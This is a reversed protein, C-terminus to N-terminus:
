LEDGFKGSSWRMKSNLSGAEMPPNLTKKLSGPLDPSPSDDYLWLWGRERELVLESIDFPIRPTYYPRNACGKKKEGEGRQESQKRAPKTQKGVVPGDVPHTRKESGTSVVPTRLGETPGTTWGTQVPKCDSQWNKSSAVSISSM